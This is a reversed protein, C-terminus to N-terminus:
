RQRRKLDRIASDLNQSVGRAWEPGGSKRWKYNQYEVYAERLILIGVLVAVVTLINKKLTNKKTKLNTEGGCHPCSEASDSIEKDCEKCKILSM